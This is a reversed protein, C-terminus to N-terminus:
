CFKMKFALADNPDIFAVHIASRPSPVFRHEYDAHELLWAHTAEMLMNTAVGFHMEGIEVGQDALLEIAVRYPAVVHHWHKGTDLPQPDNFDFLPIM